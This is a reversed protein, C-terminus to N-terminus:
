RGHRRRWARVEDRLVVYALFAVSALLLPSGGAVVATVPYTM